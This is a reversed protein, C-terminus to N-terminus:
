EREPKVASLEMMGGRCPAIADEAIAFGAARVEGRLEEPHALYRVAVGDERFQCRTKPDIGAEIWVPDDAREGVFSQIRFVGGPQLLRWANELYTQRDPGILCHLCFGDLIFDFSEDPWDTMELVSAVHFRANSGSEAARRKAWAIATPSLDVGTVDFGRKELEFCWCGAGCGLELARGGRPSYPAALVKEHWEIHLAWDPSQRDVWGTAGRTQRKRYEADFHAYDTRIMAVVM